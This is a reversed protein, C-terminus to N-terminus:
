TSHVWTPLNIKLAQLVAGVVTGATNQGPFALLLLGRRPM